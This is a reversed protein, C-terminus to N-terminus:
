IKPLTCLCSHDILHIYMREPIAARNNWGVSPDYEVLSPNRVCNQILNERRNDAM